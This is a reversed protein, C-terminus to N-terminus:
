EDYDMGCSEVYSLYYEVKKLCRKVKSVDLTPLNEIEHEPFKKSFTKDRSANKAKTPKGATKAQSLIRHTHSLAAKCYHKKNEESPGQLILFTDYRMVDLSDKDTEILESQVCKQVVSEVAIAPEEFNTNSDLNACINLFYIAWETADVEGNFYRMTFAYSALVNTINYKIAKSPPVTTLSDIGPVKKLIPCQKLKQGEEDKANVDEVLKKEKQYMWWPEWQPLIAGVDGHNIMAEFENREDETLADWVADADNLNLDKIREHLDIGEEDDSDVNEIEEVLDDTIEDDAKMKKLIEMMKLKSEDDAQYSALEENVCDRYFDESCESHKESKYCDLSCYLINCRPCCYKSTKENCLECTKQTINSPKEAM